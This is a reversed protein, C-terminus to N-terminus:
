GAIQIPVNEPGRGRHVARFARVADLTARGDFSQCGLLQTWATAAVEYPMDPNPFFLMGNPDEDFVGKLALQDEESLDPSYQITMRGHELAHVVYWDEPQEAYAGDAQQEPNHDGSTPPSTKYDSLDDENSVHANGEDPLDQQLECGAEKAAVELDGQEIPPPPTGDREEAAYGHVSGSLPQIHSAEPFDSAEQGGGDGGSAIVFGIGIVVALTLFGAVVYGLIMRRKAAAAERREAELRAQRRAEREERSTM